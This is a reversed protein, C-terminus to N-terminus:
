TKWSCCPGNANLTIQIENVTISIIVLLPPIQSELCFAHRPVLGVGALHVNCCAKQTTFPMEM